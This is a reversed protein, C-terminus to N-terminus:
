VKVEALGDGAHIEGHEAPTVLEINELRNDRKRGNKHHVEKGEMEALEDVQLTALLRHVLVTDAKGPGVECKWQEYGGTQLGFQATEAGIDFKERWRHITMDSVGCEEAIDAQSRDKEVYQQELWDEDKYKTM